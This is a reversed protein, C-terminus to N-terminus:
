PQYLLEPAIDPFSAIIGAYYLFNARELALSANYPELCGPINPINCVTFKKGGRVVEYSSDDWYTVRQFAPDDINGGEDISIQVVVAGDALHDLHHPKLFRITQSSGAAALILIRCKRLEAYLKKTHKSSFTEYSMGTDPSVFMGAAIDCAHIRSFPVERDRCGRIAHQGVVGRAGGFFINEKIWGKGCVRDLIVPIHKGAKASMSSLSPRHYEFPVIRVQKKILEAVVDRNAAMHHFCVSWQGEHYLSVEESFPQKIKLIVDADAYVSEKDEVRAGGRMWDEDTMGLSSGLGKQVVVNLACGLARVHLVLQHISSPFIPVRGEHPMIECLIGVTIARNLMIM